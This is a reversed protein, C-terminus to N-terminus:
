IVKVCTGFKSFVDVFRASDKGWFVTCCAMSAGKNNVNGNIMFRLRTDALFCIANATFVSKKWHKTNPAVPILAIVDGKANACKKLWDAIGFGYPPNVFITNYKDWDEDLGGSHLEVDAGVISSSNSCPDFEIRGLADRVADVYKPPTNWDTSGTNVKRGATMVIELVYYLLDSLVSWLCPATQTRNAQRNSMGIMVVPYHLVNVAELRKM